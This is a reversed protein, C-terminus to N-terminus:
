VELRMADVPEMKAARYAPIIGGMLSLVSGIAVALIGYELVGAWPIYSFLDTGYGIWSLLLTLLCGVFVGIVTGATGMFSSELLFIKVIFGDLAGMCKM